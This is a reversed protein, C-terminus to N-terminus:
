IKGLKLAPHAIRRFEVKPKAFNFMLTLPKGTVKLYNICQATHVDDLAKVAKVEVVVLDNVILDCIYEGVPQGLYHIEFRAQRQVRLGANRLALVMATEYVRELFGCGLTNSVDFACGILAESVANLQNEDTHM